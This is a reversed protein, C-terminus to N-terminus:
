AKLCGEQAQIRTPVEERYEMEASQQRSVEQHLFTDTCFDVPTYLISDFLENCVLETVITSVNIRIGNSYCFM